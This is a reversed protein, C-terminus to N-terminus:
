AGELPPPDPSALGREAVLARYEEATAAWLTEQRFHQLIRVRAERGHSRRLEANACYRRIAAAFPSADRAPVLTGTVGDVVADVCGPIRTAVVPLGMAGAELLTVPFGERYTPLVLMDMAAYLRPTEWDLGRIIVRPDSRLRELVEKPVPDRAEVPGVLLLRIHPFEDRLVRWANALEVIGKERVVRGVFGVVLAQDSLGLAARAAHRSAPDPPFFRETDVGNISGGGLLHIKQRACIGEAIAGERTSRGVCLVRNALACAIWDTFRLLWRLFGTRTEFELGHLHYIRVPVRAFRAAIMGLLGAKPTHAHVISPRLSRLTRWIRLLAVLDRLPSIRREMRIAHVQVGERQSFGQLEVGPSSIAQVEFGRESMYPPQGTLFRLSMPVTTLHVLRLSQRDRVQHSALAASVLSRIQAKAFGHRAM